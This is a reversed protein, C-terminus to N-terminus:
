SLKNFCPLHTILNFVQVHGMFAQAQVLMDHLHRFYDDGRKAYRM